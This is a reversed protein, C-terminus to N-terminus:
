VANTMRKKFAEFLLKECPVALQRECKEDVLVLLGIDDIGQIESVSKFTLAIKTM